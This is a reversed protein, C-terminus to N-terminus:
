SNRSWQTKRITRVWETSDPIDDRDQWMGIFPDKSLELSKPRIRSKNGYKTKIFNVFDIVQRQGDVPLAEIDKTLKIINKVHRRWLYKLVSYIM